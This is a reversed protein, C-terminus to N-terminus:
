RAGLMDVAERLTSNEQENWPGKRWRKDFKAWRKRCDKNSRGPLRRAVEVWNVKIM